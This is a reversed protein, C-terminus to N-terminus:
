FFDMRRGAQKTRREESEMGPAERRPAPRQQQPARGSMTSTGQEGEHGIEDVLHPYPLGDLGDREDECCAMELGRAESRRRRLKRSDEGAEWFRTSGRWGEGPQVGLRVGGPAEM